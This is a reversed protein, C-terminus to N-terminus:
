NASAPLIVLEDVNLNTDPLAPLHENKVLLVACIQRYVNEAKLLRLVDFGNIEPLFQEAIVM